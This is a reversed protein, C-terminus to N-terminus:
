FILIRAAYYTAPLVFLMADFRDLVGGHGPLITGMDKVGLDRKLVSECLDGLTAAIAAALGFMAKQGIGLDAWPDILGVLVVAALIAAIWGGALGEFTKNPSATSMPRTGLSRGVFFAGIDYGITTLIAGYLIGIGDPLTLILAAFSGLVVVYGVVLLTSAAGLVPSDDGGAGALYWILSFAATLFLVLPFAAEGKWYAAIPLTVAVAIGLLTAPKYGARRVASFLEVAALVVVAVVIAMVYKPGLKALLLFLAAIVVGVAVAQQMDRGPDTPRDFGGGGGGGARARQRARRPDSSIARTSPPPAAEYQPPEPEFDFFEDPDPPNPDLAGVRTQDDALRSFDDYEDREFDTGEGRWRPQSSSFASWADLDDADEETGSALVAPVEGTAPETWHPMVPDPPVVAPRDIDGPDTSGALPFRIAPRPGDGPPTEPRDGYRPADQPLRRAVDEREIAKEAEEAGIIRVGESTEDARKDKPFLEDDM